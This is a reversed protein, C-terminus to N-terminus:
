IVGRGARSLRVRTAPEDVLVAAREACARFWPSDFLARENAEETCVEVLHYGDPNAATRAVRRAIAELHLSDRTGEKARGSVLIATEAM